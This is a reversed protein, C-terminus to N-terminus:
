SAPKNITGTVTDEKPQPLRGAAPNEASVDAHNRMVSDTLSLSWHNWKHTTVLAAAPSMRRGFDLFMMAFSDQSGRRPALMRIMRKRKEESAHVPPQWEVVALRPSPIRRIHSAPADM